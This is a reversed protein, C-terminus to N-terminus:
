ARACLYEALKIEDEIVLLKMRTIRLSATAQCSSSNTMEGNTQRLADSTLTAVPQVQRARDACRQESGASATKMM